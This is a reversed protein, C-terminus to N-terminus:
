APDEKTPMISEPLVIQTVEPPTLTIGRSALWVRFSYWWETPIPTKMTQWRPDAWIPPYLDTPDLNPGNVAEMTTVYPRGRPAIDYWPRIALSHIRVNPSSTSVRWTISKGDAPQVAPPFTVVGAPNNRVDYAPVWDKGRNYSFEWTIPDLFLSIDDVMWTDLTEQMQVLQASVPGTYGSVSQQVDGWTGDGQGMVDGWTGLAQVSFWTAASKSPPTLEYSCYWENIKGPQVDKTESALVGGSSDLIQLVLPGHMPQDAFVRAAAYMRGQPYAPTVQLSRMGSIPSSAVQSTVVDGWTVGQSAFAGWTQYEQELYGWFTSTPRRTNVALHGTLGGIRQEGSDLAVDGVPSWSSLSGDYFDPDRLLQQPASQQTAFQIGTVRHESGYPVGQCTSLGTVSAPAVLGGSDALSWGGALTGDQQSQLHLTDVFTEVYQATDQANTFDARFMRIASLGVFFAVRQTHSVQVTEYTHAMVATFKPMTSRPHWPQLNNYVIGGSRLRAAVIPDTSYVATTPQYNAPPLVPTNNVYLRSQDQFTMTSSAVGTAIRADGLSGQRSTSPTLSVVQQAPEVRGVQEPFVQVQRLAPRYDDYPMAVLNSFEFKFCTAVTPPFRLDGKALRYTSTIPTWVLDEYRNPTGGLFGYQNLSLDTPGAYIFAPSFRLFASRTPDDLSLSTGTIYGQPDAVYDEWEQSEAVTVFGDDEGPQPVQTYTVPPPGYKLILGELRFQGSGPDIDLLGGVRHVVGPMGTLGTFTPGTLHAGSCDAQQLTVTDDYLSLTASSADVGVLVSSRRGPQFRVQNDSVVLGGYRAHLSQLSADWWVTLDGNDFIQCDQTAFDQSLSPTFTLGMWWSRTLDWQVAANDLDLYGVGDGLDIGETTVDYGGHPQILPFTVPADPAAFDDGTTPNDTSYYVNLSPGSTLPELHFGDIRQANGSSDRSDVYLNVVADPIPQPECKWIGGNGLDSARNERVSLRVSQGGVNTTTTFAERQTLVVKDRGTAPVDSRSNIAYGAKLNRIGLSYPVPRHDLGVPVKTTKRRAMLVWLRSAKVPSLDFSRDVWHGAGFHQPHGVYGAPMPPIVAPLSDTVRGTCHRGNVDLLPQSYRMIWDTSRADPQYFVSLDHPFRPVQFSLQNILMPTNFVIELVEVFPINGHLPPEDSYRAFTSWFEIDSNGGKAVQTTKTSSMLELLQELPIGDVYVPALDSNAVSPTGDSPNSFSPM